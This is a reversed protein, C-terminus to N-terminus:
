LFVDETHSDAEQESLPAAILKKAWIPGVFPKSYNLMELGTLSKTFCKEM